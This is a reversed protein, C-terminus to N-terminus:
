DHKWRVYAVRSLWLLGFAEVVLLCLILLLCNHQTLTSDTLNFLDFLGALGLFSAVALVGGAAGATLPRDLLVSCLVASVFSLFWTVLLILWPLIMGLPGWVDLPWLWFTIIGFLIAGSLLALMPLFLKANWITGRSVPREHQFAETGRARESAFLGAALSLALGYACFAAIVLGFPLWSHSECSLRAVMTWAAPAIVMLILLWWSERWEKWVLAAFPSRFSPQSM